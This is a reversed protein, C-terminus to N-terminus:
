YTLRDSKRKYDNLLLNIKDFHDTDKSLLISRYDLIHNEDFLQLSAFDDGKVLFM